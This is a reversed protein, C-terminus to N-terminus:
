TSRERLFKRWDWAVPDDCPRMPTSSALRPALAELGSRFGPGAVFATDEFQRTTTCCNCVARLNILRNCATAIHDFTTASAGCFECRGDNRAFLKARDREGVLRQRRPYGGGQLHWFAQGLSAQREPDLIAGDVLGGRTQRVLASSERCASGCYPSKTSEAARGCAPCHNSDVWLPVVPTEILRCAEAVLLGFAARAQADVDETDALAEPPPLSAALRRLADAYNM